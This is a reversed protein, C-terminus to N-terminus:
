KHSAESCTWVLDPRGLTLQELPFQHNEKLVYEENGQSDNPKKLQM